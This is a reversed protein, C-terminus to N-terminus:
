KTIDSRLNIVQFCYLTLSLCLFSFRESIKLFKTLLWCMKYLFKFTVSVAFVLTVDRRVLSQQHRVKFARSKQSTIYAICNCLRDRAEEGWFGHDSPIYHFIFGGPRFNYVEEFYLHLCIRMLFFFVHRTLLSTIYFVAGTWKELAIKNVNKHPFSVVRMCTYFFFWRHIWILKKFWM